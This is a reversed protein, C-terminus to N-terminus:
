NKVMEQTEIFYDYIKRQNTKKPDFGNFVFIKNLIYGGCLTVIVTGIGVIGGLLYGVVLVTLEIAPRIYTASLGTIKILGVMLGDRPGAGLEQRIYFYVGYNFILLGLFLSVVKLPYTEPRWIIHVKDIMDIFMGIFYMNLITGMGPYIKLTLSFLIVLIGIIQTVRGFEVAFKNVLGLNLTGWSNMGINAGKMQAIGYACLFFGIFLSPLKKMDELMMERNIRM